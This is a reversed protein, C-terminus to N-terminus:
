SHHLPVKYKSHTGLEKYFCNLISKKFVTSYNKNTHYMKFSKSVMDVEKMTLRLYIKKLEDGFVKIM